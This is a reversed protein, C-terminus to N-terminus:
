SFSEATSLSVLLMYLQELKFNLICNQDEALISEALAMRMGNNHAKQRECRNLVVPSTTSSNQRRFDILIARFLSARETCLFSAPARDRLKPFHCTSVGGSKVSEWYSTCCLELNAHELFESELEPEYVAVSQRDSSNM